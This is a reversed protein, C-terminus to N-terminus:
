EAAQWQVHVRIDIGKKLSSSVTCYNEFIGACVEAGADAERVSPRLLVDVHDIRPLGDENPKVVATVDTEFSSVDAGASRLAELLSASLCHGIASGLLAPTAPGSAEGVPDPEDSVYPKGHPVGDEGAQSVFRFGSEYKLNVTFRREKQNRMHM